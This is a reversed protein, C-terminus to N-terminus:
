LRVGAIPWDLCVGRLSFSSSLFSFSQGERVEDGGEGGEGGEGELMSVKTCCM